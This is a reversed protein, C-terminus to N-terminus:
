NINTRENKDSRLIAIAIIVILLAILYTIPNYEPVPKPKLTPTKLIKEKSSTMPVIQYYNGTANDIVSVPLTFIQGYETDVTKELTITNYCPNVTTTITENGFKLTINKPFIDKNIIKFTCKVKTKNYLGTCSFSDLVPYETGNCKYLM